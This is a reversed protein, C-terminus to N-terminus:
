WVAKSVVSLGALISPTITKNKQPYNAVGLATCSESDDCTEWLIKWM